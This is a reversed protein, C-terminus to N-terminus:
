IFTRNRKSWLTTIAQGLKALAEDNDTLVKQMGIMSMLMYDIRHLESWLKLERYFDQVNPDDEKDASIQIYFDKDRVFTKAIGEEDPHLDNIASTPIPLSSKGRNCDYCSLVLNEIYGAEKKTKFSKQYIFHDVEFMQVPIVDLSVGCYACKNNYAEMFKAKYVTSNDSVYNHMDVARPHDQKISIVLDNKKSKIESLNPCYETNRYDSSM